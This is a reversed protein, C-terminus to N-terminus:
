GHKMVRVVERAYNGATERYCSVETIIRERISSSEIRVVGTALELFDHWRWSPAERLMGLVIRDCEPRIAELLDLAMSNRAEAQRKHSLGILPSLGVDQCAEVCLTEGVRYAYNILANVPDTANRNTNMATLSKRMNWQLWRPPVKLMHDAVFPVTVTKWASWYAEAAKGELGLFRLIDDEVSMRDAYQRIRKAVRDAGLFEANAAQGSLKADNLFRMVPLPNGTVQKRWLTTDSTEASGTALIKDRWLVSWPIACQTLWAMAEISISGTNGTIVIRDAAPVRELRRVGSADKVVLCGRSVGVTVVHGTVIVASGM